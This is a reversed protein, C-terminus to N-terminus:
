LSSIVVSLVVFSLLTSLSKPSCTVSELLFPFLLVDLENLAVTYFARVFVGCASGSSTVAM